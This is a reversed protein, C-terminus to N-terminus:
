ILQQLVQEARNADTSQAILNYHEILNTDKGDHQNKGFAYMIIGMGVGVIAGYGVGSFANNILSVGSNPANFMSLSLALFSIILGVVAGNLAAQGLALAQNKSRKAREGIPVETFAIALNQEPFGHNVLYDVANQAELFTPYSGITHSKATRIEALLSTPMPMKAQM